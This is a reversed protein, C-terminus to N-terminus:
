EFRNFFDQRKILFVGIKIIIEKIEQDQTEPLYFKYILQETFTSLSLQDKTENFFTEINQFLKKLEALTCVLKKERTEKETETDTKASELLISEIKWGGRSPKLCSLVDSLNQPNRALASDPTLIALERGISSATISDSLIDESGHHYYKVGSTHIFVLPLTGIFWTFPNVRIRSNTQYQRGLRLSNQQVRGTITPQARMERAPPPPPLPSNPPNQSRRQSQLAISENTRMNSTFAGLDRRSNTYLWRILHLYSHEHRHLLVRNEAELGGGEFRPKIHHECFM